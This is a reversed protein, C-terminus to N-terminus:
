SLRPYATGLTDPACRWGRLLGASSACSLTHALFSVCEPRPGCWAIPMHVATILEHGFDVVLERWLVDRAAPNELVGKWRRCVQRVRM